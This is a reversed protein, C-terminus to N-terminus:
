AHALELCQAAVREAADPVGLARAREALARLRSRSGDLETLLRAGASVSFRDQPLVIAADRDSLVRANASQHDDVAFPFPVLVAAVGAAALECVTLAGARCVVLHPWAYAASMDGIFAEVSADIGHERYRALTAAHDREGSQHRVEFRTSGAAAFVEPMRANLFTAGQSGGLVLVRLRGWAFDMRQAPAPIAAIAARVPNGTTVAARRAAFTAPFAELVRTAIPALLRNTLGAIANQEHILLPIRLLWAALGAPGAAYGGMGLVAAPRMRRLLSVARLLGWALQLPALVRSALGKGRLGTVALTLLEIGQAPVLRTEIGRRTGLWLLPVGRRQLCSAVALAPFVHGGTGGASILVPRSVAVGPACARRCPM